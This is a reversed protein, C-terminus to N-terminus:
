RKTTGKDEGRKEHDKEDKEKDVGKIKGIQRERELRFSVPFCFYCVYIRVKLHFPNVVHIETREGFQTRGGQFIPNCFFCPIKENRFPPSMPLFLTAFGHPTDHKFIGFSLLDRQCRSKNKGKIGVESKNFCFYPHM